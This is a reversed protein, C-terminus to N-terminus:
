CWYANPFIPRSSMHFHPSLATSIIQPINPTKSTSSYYSHMLDIPLNHPLKPCSGTSGWMQFALPLLHGGGFQSKLMFIPQTTSALLSPFTSSMLPLCSSGHLLSESTLLTQCWSVPSSFPCGKSVSRLFSSIIPKSVCVYVYTQLCPSSPFLECKIAHLEKLVGALCGAILSPPLPPTPIQLTTFRPNTMTTFPLYLHSPAFILNCLPM